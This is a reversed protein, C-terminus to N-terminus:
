KGDKVRLRAIVNLTMGMFLGIAGLIMFISVRMASYALSFYRTQNYQITAVAIDRLLTSCVMLGELYFINLGFYDFFKKRRECKWCGTTQFKLIESL